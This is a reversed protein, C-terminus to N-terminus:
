SEPSSDSVELFLTVFTDSHYANLRTTSNTVQTTKLSYIKHKCNFGEKQINSKLIFNIYRKEFTEWDVKEKKFIRLRFNIM